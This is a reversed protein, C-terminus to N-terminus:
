ERIFAPHRRRNNYARNPVLWGQEKFPVCPVYTNYRLQAVPSIQSARTVAARRDKTCSAAEQAYHAASPGGMEALAEGLGTTGAAAFANVAFWREWDSNDEL